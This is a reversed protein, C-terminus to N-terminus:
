MMTALSAITELSSDCYDSKESLIPFGLGGLRVPLSFQLRDDNTSVLFTPLFIDKRFDHLPKLYDNMGQITRKFCNFQHVVGRCYIVYAAHPQTKAYETLM